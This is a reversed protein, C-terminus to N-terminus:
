KAVSVDFDQAAIVVGRDMVEIRWRGPVLEWPKEFSWGSYRPIGANMPSAWEDMTTSRGTEPNEIPPHYVRTTLPVISQGSQASVLLQVGFRTGPQANIKPCGPKFKPSDLEHMIGVYGLETNPASTTGAQKQASIEGCNVIKATARPGDDRKFPPTNTTCAIAGGVLIVIVLANAASVIKLM